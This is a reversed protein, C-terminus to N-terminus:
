RSVIEPLREPDTLGTGGYLVFEPPIAGLEDWLARQPGPLVDLRPEFPVESTM